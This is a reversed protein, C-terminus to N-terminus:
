KYPRPNPCALSDTFKAHSWTSRDRCILLRRLRNLKIKLPQYKDIKEMEKDKINGDRPVGIDIIFGTKEPHNILIIDPWNNPMQIDTQVPFDGFIKAQKGSSERTGDM